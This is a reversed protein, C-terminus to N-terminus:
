HPEEALAKKVKAPSKVRATDVAENVVETPQEDTTNDDM